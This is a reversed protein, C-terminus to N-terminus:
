SNYQALKAKLDKAQLALKRMEVENKVYCLLNQHVEGKTQSLEELQKSMIDKIKDCARSMDDKTFKNQYDQIAIKQKTMIQETELSSSEALDAQYPEVSNLLFLHGIKEIYENIEKDFWLSANQYKEKLQEMKDLNAELQSCEAKLQLTRQVVDLEQESEEQASPDIDLQM